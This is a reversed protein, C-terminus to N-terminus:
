SVALVQISDSWVSCRNKGERKAKYLANDAKRYLTEFDVGDFPYVAAGISVRTELSQGAFVFDVSLAVRLRELRSLLSNPDPIPLYILFEDGGFRSVFAGYEEAISLLAVGVDHLATDGADHGCTDNIQKLGDLDIIVVAAHQNIDAMDMSAKIQRMFVTRTPLGTLEDLLGKQSVAALEGFENSSLLKKAHLENQLDVIQRILVNLDKLKGETYMKGFFSIVGFLCLYLLAKILFAYFIPKSTSIADVATVLKWNTPNVPSYQVLLLGRKDLTWYSGSGGSEVSRIIDSATQSVWSSETVLHAFPKDVISVERDAMITNDSGILSFMYNNGPLVRTIMENVSAFPISMIITGAINGKVDKYPLCITYNQTANDAGATFVDTIEAVGTKLVRQFYDRGGINGPIDDFSSTIKGTTDTIGILFLEYVANYPKLLLARDELSIATNSLNLDQTLAYGLKWTINLKHELERHSADAVNRSAQRLTVFATHVMFAFECLLITACIAWVYRFLFSLFLDITNKRGM